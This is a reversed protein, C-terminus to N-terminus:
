AHLMTKPEVVNDFDNTSVGLVLLDLEWSDEGEEEM